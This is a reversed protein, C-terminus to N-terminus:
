AFLADNSLKNWTKSLVHNVYYVEVPSYYTIKEKISYITDKNTSSHESM